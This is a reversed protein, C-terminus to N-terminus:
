SAETTPEKREIYATKGEKSGAEHLVRTVGEALAQRNVAGASGHFFGVCSCRCMPKRASHCRNDYRRVETM